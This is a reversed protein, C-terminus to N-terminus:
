EKMRKKRREYEAHVSRSGIAYGLVVGLLLVMPIYIAHNTTMAGVDFM